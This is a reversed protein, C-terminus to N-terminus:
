GEAQIAKELFSALFRPAAISLVISLVALICMMRVFSRKRGNMDAKILEAVVQGSIIAPPVGPGPSTLQGAFYLNSVKGPKMSPKLYATQLLTNALGYANGKFSNYDQEFDRHAYSRKLVIAKRLSGPEEGTRKELRDMVMDFCRERAEDTDELGPALPVLIFINEYGSPAMSEDSLSTVSAYFLPRRPWSPNPGYIEEVHDDIDEDFFLNHHELNKVKRNLGLYWLVSGPSM